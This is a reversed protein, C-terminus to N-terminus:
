GLNWSYGAERAANEWKERTPFAAVHLALSFSALMLFDRYDRSIFFVLMGFIAPMEAAAMKLIMRTQLEVAFSQGEPDEQPPRRTKVQRVVFWAIPQALFAILWLMGRFTPDIPPPPKSPPERHILYIVGGYVLVSVLFAVNIIQATMLRQPLPLTRYTHAM